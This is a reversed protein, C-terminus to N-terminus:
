TTAACSERGNTSSSKSRTSFAPPPFHPFTQRRTGPIPNLLVDFLVSLLIFNFPLNSAETTCTGYHANNRKDYQRIETWIDSPDRCFIERGGEREMERSGRECGEERGHSEAATSQSTVERWSAREAGEHIHLPSDM